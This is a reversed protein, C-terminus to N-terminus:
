RRTHRPLVKRKAAVPRRQSQPARQDRPHAEGDGGSVCVRWPVHHDLHAGVVVREVHLHVSAAAVNADRGHTALTARMQVGGEVGGAGARRGCAAGAVAEVAVAAAGRAGVALALVADRVAISGPVSGVDVRILDGKAGGLVAADRKLVLVKTGDNGFHRGVAGKLGRGDVYTNEAPPVATVDRAANCPMAPNACCNRDSTSAGVSM